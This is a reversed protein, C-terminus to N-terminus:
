TIELHVKTSFNYLCCHTNVVGNHYAQNALLPTHRRLMNTPSVLDNDQVLDFFRMPTKGFCEQRDESFIAVRGSFCTSSTPSRTAHTKQHLSIMTVQNKQAPKHNYSTERSCFFCKSSADQFLCTGHSLKIYNTSQLNYHFGQWKFRKFVLHPKM